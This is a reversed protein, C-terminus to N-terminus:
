KGELACVTRQGALPAVLGAPRICTRLTDEEAGGRGAAGSAVPINVASLKLGEHALRIAAM